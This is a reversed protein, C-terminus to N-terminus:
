FTVAKVIERINQDNMCRFHGKPCQAYGIKSCPRCSLKRVEFTQNKHEGDGYYPTMGFEPITNGWISIIKKHFAAAIHMMGTDHTIVLASQRIISASQHLSFNGCTNVVNPCQDAITQGTLQEAKGGLLLVSVKLQKCIDIIKETPLRKTVHAAGIAFAIYKEKQIVPNESFISLDVEEGSPIFYDLSKGDNKCGLNRLPELYRDVIHVDPLVGIWKLQTAAWKQINIKNFSLTKNITSSIQLLQKSRLNKHLDIIYTYRETKLEAMVEGVSNEIAYIKQVHPNAELIIAYRKKTLFHVEANLQEEAIRIVPTTLVIDGISSFRVILIKVPKSDM